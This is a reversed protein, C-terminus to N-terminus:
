MIQSIKRKEKEKNENGKRKCKTCKSIKRKRRVRWGRCFGSPTMKGIEEKRNTRGRNREKEGERDKGCHREHTGDLICGEFVCM